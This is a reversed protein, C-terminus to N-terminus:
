RRERKGDQSRCAVAPALAPKRLREHCDVKGPLLESTDRFVRLAQLVLLSQPNHKLALLPRM